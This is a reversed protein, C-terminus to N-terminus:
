FRVDPQGEIHPSAARGSGIVGISIRFQPVMFFLHRGPRLFGDQRLDGMAANLNMCNLNLNRNSM